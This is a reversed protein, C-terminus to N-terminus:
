TNSRVGSDASPEESRKSGDCHPAAILPGEEAVLIRIGTHGRRPKITVLPQGGAVTLAKVCADGWIASAIKALYQQVRPTSVILEVDKAEVAVQRLADAGPLVDACAKFADDYYRDGPLLAMAMTAGASRLEDVKSAVVDDDLDDSDLVAIGSQAHLADIAQHRNFAAARDSAELWGPGPEAKELTKGQIYGVFAPIPEEITITLQM